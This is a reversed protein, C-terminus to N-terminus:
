SYKLLVNKFFFGDLCSRENISLGLSPLLFQCVASDPGSFEIDQHGSEWLWTAVMLSPTESFNELSGVRNTLDAEGQIYTIHENIGGAGLSSAGHENM